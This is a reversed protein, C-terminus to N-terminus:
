EGKGMRKRWGSGGRERVTERDTAESQIETVGHSTLDPGEGEEQAGGGTRIMHGIVQEM